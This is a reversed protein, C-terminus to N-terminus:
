LAAGPMLNRVDQITFTTRSALAAAVGAFTSAALRIYHLFALSAWRGMRMIISDPVHAASLTSAGSFRLSHTHVLDPNLGFMPAVVEKLWINMSDSSISVRTHSSSIFPQEPLPKAKVAFDFTIEVFDYVFDPSRPGVCHRPIPYIFGQGFPDKKSDKICFNGGLLRHRAQAYRWAEPSPVMIYPSAMTVQNPHEHAIWFVVSKALLHHKSKPRKLYESVRCLLTYAIICAVLLAFHSLNINIQLTEAAAQELMGICVPLTQRDSISNGPIQRWAKMLGARASKLFQSTDMFAVDIGNTSFHYRVASLYKIAPDAEVPDTPHNVLYAMYGACALIPFTWESPDGSLLVYNHYSAPTTRLFKDTGIYLCYVLWRKWGTSYTVQTSDMVSSALMAHMNGFLTEMVQFAQASASQIPLGYQQLPFGVTTRNIPRGLNSASSAPCANPVSLDTVRRRKGSFLAMYEQYSLQSDDPCPDLFRQVELPTGRVLEIPPRSPQSSPVTPGLRSPYSIIVDPRNLPILPTSLASPLSSTPPLQPVSGLLM